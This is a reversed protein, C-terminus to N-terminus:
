CETRCAIIFDGSFAHDAVMQMQRAPKDDRWEDDDDFTAVLTGTAAIVGFNRADAPGKNVGTELVRARADDLQELVERTGDNVGDIVVLVGILPYTQALVSQVVRTVLHPRRYTPIAVSLLDTM